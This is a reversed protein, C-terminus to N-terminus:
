TKSNQASNSLTMSRKDSALFQGNSNLVRKMSGLNLTNRPVKNINDISLEQYMKDVEYFQNKM